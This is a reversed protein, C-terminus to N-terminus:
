RRRDRPPAGRRSRRMTLLVSITLGGWIALMGVVMTTIAATSM